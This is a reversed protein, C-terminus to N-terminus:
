VVEPYASQVIDVDFWWGNGWPIVQIPESMYVNSYKDMALTQINKLALCGSRYASTVYQKGTISRGITVPCAYQMLNTVKTYDKTYCSFKWTKAGLAESFSKIVANPLEVGNYCVNSHTALTTLDMTSTVSGSIYLNYDFTVIYTPTSIYSSSITSESFSLICALTISKGPPVIGLNVIESINFLHRAVLVGATSFLGMETITRDTDPDNTFTNTFTLTNTTYVGTVTATNFGGSTYPNELATNSYAEALDGSGIKMKTVYDTSEGTFLESLLHYGATPIIM